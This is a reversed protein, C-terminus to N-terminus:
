SLMPINGQPHHDPTRGHKDQQIDLDVSHNMHVQIDSDHQLIM